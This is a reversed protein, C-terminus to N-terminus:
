SVSYHTYYPSGTITGDGLCNIELEAMTPEHLYEIGRLRVGYSNPWIDFKGKGNNAYDYHFRAVEPHEENSLISRNDASIQFDEETM